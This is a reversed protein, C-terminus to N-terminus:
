TSSTPACDLALGYIYNGFSDASVSGMQILPTNIPFTTDAQLVTNQATNAITSGGIGIISFQLQPTIWEVSLKITVAGLLLVGPKNTGAFPNSACTQTGTFARADLIVGNPSAPTSIYAAHIHDCIDGAGFQDVNLVSQEYYNACMSTTTTTCSSLQAHAPVASAAAIVLVATALCSKIWMSEAKM